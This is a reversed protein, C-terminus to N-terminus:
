IYRYNLLFDKVAGSVKFQEAFSRPINWKEKGHYFVFPIIIRLDKKEDIDKQWMTYMYYLLQIFIGADRSYKHEFLIYIDVPIGEEENSQPKMKTKIVIDSFCERFQKSVYNTADIEINSLEVADRLNGPLAFKLFTGANNPDEFTKKFFKDHVNNIDSM